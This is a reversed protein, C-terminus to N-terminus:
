CWAIRVAFADPAPMTASLSTVTRDTFAVLGRHAFMQLLQWTPNAFLEAGRTTVTAETSEVRARASGVDYLHAHLHKARGLIPGPGVSRLLAQKIRGLNAEIDAHLIPELEAPDGGLLDDIVVDTLRIQLAVPFWAHEPPEDPLDPVLQAVAARLRGVAVDGFARRCCQAWRAIVSGRCRGEIREVRDATWRPLGALQRPSLGGSSGDEACRFTGCPETIVSSYM